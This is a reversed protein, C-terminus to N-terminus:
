DADFLCRFIHIIRIMRGSTTNGRSTYKVFAGIPTYEVLPWRFFSWISKQSFQDNHDREWSEYVQCSSLHFSVAVACIVERSALYLLGTPVCCNTLFPCAAHKYLYVTGLGHCIDVLPLQQAKGRMVAGRRFYSFPATSATDILLRQQSDAGHTGCVSVTHALCLTQIETCAACV